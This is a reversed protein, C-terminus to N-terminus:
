KRRSPPEEVMSLLARGVLCGGCKPSGAGQGVDLYSLRHRSDEPGGLARAAGTRGQLPM